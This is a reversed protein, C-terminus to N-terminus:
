KQLLCINTKTELLWFGQPQREDIQPCLRAVRIAQHELTGRPAELEAWEWSVNGSNIVTM